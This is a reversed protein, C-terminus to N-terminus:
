RNEKENGCFWRNEGHEKKEKEAGDHFIYANHEDIMKIFIVASRRFIDWKGVSACYKSFDTISIFKKCSAIYDILDNVRDGESQGDNEVCEVLKRILDKDGKVDNVSYQYKEENNFHILYELAKDINSTPRFYNPEIGFDNAVATATRQSNFRIVVHFHPKKLDGIKHEEAVDDYVDKDHLIYVAQCQSLLSIVKMHDDNEPYLVSVWVRSRAIDKSM